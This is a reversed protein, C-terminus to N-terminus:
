CRALGGHQLVVGQRNDAVALESDKKVGIDTMAGVRKPERLVGFRTPTIVSIHTFFYRTSCSLQYIFTHYHYQVRHATRVINFCM